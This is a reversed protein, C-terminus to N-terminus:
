KDKSEKLLGIECLERRFDTKPLFSTIKIALKISYSGYTIKPKKRKYGFSKDFRLHFLKKNEDFRSEFEEFLIEKEKDSLKHILKDLATKIYKKNKILMEFFAIRNGYAGELLEINVEANKIVELGLLNKIIALNKALSETEYVYFSVNLKSIEVSM